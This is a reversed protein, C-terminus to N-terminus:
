QAKGVADIDAVTRTRVDVHQGTNGEITKFRTSSTINTTDDIWKVFLASHGGDWLSLYDGEKMVYTESLVESRTHLRGRDDFWDKMDVTGINGEPTWFGEKWLCWSAFESCWLNGTGYKYGNTKGLERAAFHLAAHHTGEIHKLKRQLMKGATGMSTYNPADLWREARWYLINVGSHYIEMRDVEIGDGSPMWFSIEDWTDQPYDEVVTGALDWTLTWGRPFVNDSGNWYGYLRINRGRGFNMTIYDTNSGANTHSGIVLRVYNDGVMPGDGDSLFEHGSKDGYGGSVDPEFTAVPAVYPEVGDPLAYVPPADASMELVGQDIYDLNDDVYPGGTNDAFVATSLSLAMMVAASKLTITSRKM